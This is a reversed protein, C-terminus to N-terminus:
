SICEHGHRAMQRRLPQFYFISRAGTSSNVAPRPSKSNGGSRNETWAVTRTRPMGLRVTKTGPEAPASCVYRQCTAWCRRTM